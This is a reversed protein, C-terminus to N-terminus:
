RLQVDEDTLLAAMPEVIRANEFGSLAHAAQRRVERDPDKLAGILATIIRDTVDASVPPQALAPVSSLLATMLFTMTLKRIMHPRGECRNRCSECPEDRSGM